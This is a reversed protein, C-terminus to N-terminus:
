FILSLSSQMQLSFVLLESNCLKGASKLLETQNVIDNLSYQMHFIWCELRTSIKVSMFTKFGRLFLVVIQTFPLCAIAQYIRLVALVKDCVFVQYINTTLMLQTSFTCIYPHIPCMSLFAHFTQVIFVHVLNKTHQGTLM